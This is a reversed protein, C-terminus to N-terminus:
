VMVSRDEERGVERWESVGDLIALSGRRADIRIWGGGKKGGM